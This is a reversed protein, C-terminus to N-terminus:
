NPGVSRTRTEAGDVEEVTGARDLSRRWDPGLQQRWEAVTKCVRPRSMRTAGRADVRTCVRREGAPDEGAAGAAFAPAAIAVLSIAILAKM